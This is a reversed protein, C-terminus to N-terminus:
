RDPPGAGLLTERRPDAQVHVVLGPRLTEFIHSPVRLTRARIGDHIAAYHAIGDAPGKDVEWQRLVQGYFEAAPKSRFAPIVRRQRRHAFPALPAAGLAAAYAVERGAGVAPRSSGAYRARRAALASLGAPTLRDRRAAWRPTGWPAPRTLGRARADATVEDRFARLEGAALDGALTDAPFEGRAGARRALYLAARREYSLMGADVPGPALVCTVPGALQMMDRGILIGPQRLWFWGRAGLDLLTARFGDRGSRGALLAVVAPPPETRVGVRTDARAHPMAVM